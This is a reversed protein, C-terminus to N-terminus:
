SHQMEFEATSKEATSKTMSDSGKWSVCVSTRTERTISSGEIRWFSVLSLGVNQFYIYM